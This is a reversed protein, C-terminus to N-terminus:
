LRQRPKVRWVASPDARGLRREVVLEFLSARLRCFLPIQIQAREGIEVVVAFAGFAVDPIERLAAPAVNKQPNQGHEVVQRASLLM